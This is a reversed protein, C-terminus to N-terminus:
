ALGLQEAAPLAVTFASGLPHRAAVAIRGGHALVLEKAIALGLGSGGSTRTRSQDVRFFRDFVRERLEEPIGPGEDEVTVCAEEPTRSARVTVRGGAPTFNIANEILNRLVHVLYARDGYVAAPLGDASLKVGRRQALPGLQQVAQTALAGLDVFERALRLGQEDTRALLLLNEVTAIMRDVEERNSELVERAAPSLNDTRLSVDIDTRMVALPTRLEHSTDAVLRQQEAVGAQIRDLMTNLTTALHAVEDGSAPVALREHLETPGIAEVTTVMRDIPQMARRALWWGGAATGLLAAPLALLLLMLVRHASRDVPALSVGAVIVQTQGSRVVSRATVRFRSGHGLSRSGVPRHGAVVRALTQRDLMPTRSVPDGFSYVVNGAPSLVQAAAREGSLVTASKDHFEPFGEIGYGGAIQELAPRLSRDTAGILDARLRIIVFAGVVILIAALLLLYWATLRVRIPANV